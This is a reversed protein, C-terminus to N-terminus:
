KEQVLCEKRHIRRVFGESEPGIRCVFFRFEGEEAKRTPAVPRVAKGPSGRRRRGFVASCGEVRDFDPSCTNHLV